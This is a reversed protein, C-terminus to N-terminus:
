TTLKNIRSIIQTEATWSPPVLMSVAESCSLLKYFIFTYCSHSLLVAALIKIKMLKRKSHSKHWQRFHRHIVACLLIRHDHTHSSKQLLNQKANFHLLINSSITETM